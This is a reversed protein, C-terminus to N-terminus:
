KVKIAITDSAPSGNARTGSVILSYKGKKLGKKKLKLAVKGKSFAAATASGLVKAGKRLEFRASALTERADVTFSVKSAKKVKKFKLTTPKATADFPTAPQPEPSSPGGAGPCPGVKYDKGEAEDNTPFFYVASASGYVNAASANTASLTKGQPAIAKPLDISIVGNPGEFIKGKTSGETTYGDTGATGFSYAVGADDILAQAFRNSGEDDVWQFNYIVGFAGSEREKTLNTVQLNATVTAKGAADFAFDIWGARIDVNDKAPAPTPPTGSFPLVNIRQDGAPDEFLIGACGPTPATGQAGATAPGVAALACMISLPLAARRLRRMVM